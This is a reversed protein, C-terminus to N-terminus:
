EDDMFDSLAAIKKALKKLGERDLLATVLVTDGKIEADIRNLEAAVIPQPALAPAATQAHTQMAEDGSEATDKSSEGRNEDPSGVTEFAESQKLFRMTDLYSRAVPNIARELFNERVLWAKLADESPPGDSFREAIMRFVSPALGAERLANRKDEESDPYLIDVLIQTVQLQGKGAKEVLGYHALTALSKDSAGSTGGYGIHTAAVSRDIPNKRDKEFIQGALGIAKELPFNPYAPSQKQSM